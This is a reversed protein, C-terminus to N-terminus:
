LSCVQQRNKRGSKSHRESIKVAILIKTHAPIFLTIFYQLYLENFYRNQVIYLIYGCLRLCVCLYRFQGFPGVYGGGNSHCRCTFLVPCKVRWRKYQRARAEVHLRGKLAVLPFLACMYRAHACLVHLQVTAYNHLLTHTHMQLEIDTVICSDHVCTGRMCRAHVIILRKIPSFGSTPFRLVTTECIHEFVCVCLYIDGNDDCLSVYFRFPKGCM